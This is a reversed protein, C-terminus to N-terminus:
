SQVEPVLHAPAVRPEGHGGRRSAAGLEPALRCGNGTPQPCSVNTCAQRRRNLRELRALREDAVLSALSPRNLLAGGRSYHLLRPEVSALDTSSALPRQPRQPGEGWPRSARPYHPLRPELSALARGSRRGPIPRPRCCPASAAAPADHHNEEDGHEARPRATKSARRRALRPTAHALMCVRCPLDRM